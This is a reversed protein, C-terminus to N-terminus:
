RRTRRGKRKFVERTYDPGFDAPMRLNAAVAAEDQQYESFVNDSVLTSDMTIEEHIREIRHSTKGIELTQTRHMGFANPLYKITIVWSTQDPNEAISSSAHDKLVTSKFDPDIVLGNFMMSASRVKAPHSQNQPFDGLRFITIKKDAPRVERSDIGDYFYDFAGIDDEGKAHFYAGFFTDTPVKKLWVTGSAEFKGGKFRPHEKRWVIHYSLYESSRIQAQVGELVADLQADQALASSVMLGVITPFLFARLCKV